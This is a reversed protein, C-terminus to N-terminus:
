SLEGIETLLELPTKVTVGFKDVDNFTLIKACGTTLRMLVDEYEYFLPVSLVPKIKGNEIMSMMKFSAGRTSRVASIIVNTDIVVRLM